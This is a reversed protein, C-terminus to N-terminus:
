SGSVPEMMRYGADRVTNYLTNLGVYGTVVNVITTGNQLDVEVDIVGPVDTLASEIHFACSVCTMSHVM